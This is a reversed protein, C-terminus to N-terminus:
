SGEQRLAKMYVGDRLLDLESIEPGNRLLGFRMKMQEKEKSKRVQEQERLSVSRQCGTLRRSASKQEVRKQLGRSLQQQDFDSCAHDWMRSSALLLLKHQRQLSSM